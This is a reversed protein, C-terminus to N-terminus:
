RKIMILDFAATVRANNTRVSTHIDIDSKEPIIIPISFTYNYPMGTGAVEATHGIRFSNENNYRIFMDITADAGYKVTTSGQTLYGTYGAPITYVCMLTQGKGSKIRAVTINNMDIDIDDVNAAFGNSYFAKFVRKFVKQGVSSTTDSLTFEESIENYDEDLGYVVLKGNVDLSNVPPITLVNPNDFNTWPYFTDSVDWVTGSKDNKMNPVAGFIHNYSTNLVRGSAIDIGHNNLYSSFAM